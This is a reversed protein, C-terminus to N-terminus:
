HSLVWCQHCRNGATRFYCYLPLSVLSECISKLAEIFGRFIGRRGKADWRNGIQRSVWSLLSFSPKYIDCAKKLYLPMPFPPFIGQLLACCGVGTNKGPFDGPCLLRTPSQRRNCVTLFLQLLQACCLVTWRLFNLHHSQEWYKKFIYVLGWFLIQMPSQPCM